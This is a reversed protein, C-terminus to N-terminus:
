KKLNPYVFEEIRDTFYHQTEYSDFQMDVFAVAEAANCGRVVKDGEKVAM